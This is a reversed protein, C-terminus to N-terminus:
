RDRFRQVIEASVIRVNGNLTGNDMLATVSSAHKDTVGLRGGSETLVGTEILQEIAFDVLISPGIFKAKVQERSRPVFFGATHFSEFLSKLMRKTADLNTRIQGPRDLLKDLECRSEEDVDSLPNYIASRLGASNSSSFRGRFACDLFETSANAECSIWECNHFTCNNFTTSRIDLHAVLGAFQLGSFTSHANQRQGFIGTMVDTQLPRGLHAALSLSQALEWLFPIVASQKADGHRVRNVHFAIHTQWDTPALLDVMHGIVPSSRGDFSSLYHEVVSDKERALIFECLWVAPAFQALFEFRFILGTTGATLLPHSQLTIAQEPTLEKGYADEAATTVDAIPYPGDGMDVVLTSIMRFQQAPSLCFHRNMHERYLIGHTIAYLPNRYRAGAFAYDEPQNDSTLEAETAVLHLILPTAPAREDYPTQGTGTPHAADTVAQLINDFREREASGPKPFRKERYRGIQEKRFPQLKFERVRKRSEQPVMDSWLGARSTLLVRCDSEEALQELQDIVDVPTITGGRISGVEDLGDFIVAICGAKAFLEFAEQTIVNHGNVQIAHKIISWFSIPEHPNLSSWQRSEVLVSLVDHKSRLFHTLERSVSTKGLGAPALLVAVSADPEEDFQEVKFWASLKGLALKDDVIPEVFHPNSYKPIQLEGLLYRCERQLLESLLNVADAGLEKKVLDRSNALPSSRQIAVSLKSNRRIDRLRNNLTPLDPKNLGRSKIFLLYFDQPLQTQSAQDRLRYRWLEWGTAEDVRAASELRLVGVVREELDM